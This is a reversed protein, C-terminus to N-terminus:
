APNPEDKIAVSVLAPALTLDALFAIVIAIATLMGFNFLHIMFAQTYVLFSTALVCSTFLLAQGTERLTIVVATEVKGTREFERRFSHMFHITDDVALGIVITGIMLNFMDIQIGLWGMLGLIFVVPALNPIMSLLGLKLKGILAVMLITIVLLATTYSLIMTDIAAVISEGLLRTMGTLGVSVDPGLIERIEPLIRSVYPRIQAADVFPTRVSMRATEFDATVLDEVDDSGSNEFLLLEQSVLSRSDPIAYFEERNENLARHTEKVVDVISIVKNGRIEFYESQEVHKQVAELKRLLEPDHLGNTVGTSVVVEYSVSGGLDDNLFEMAQRIDAHPPFWRLIDNGVRVRALGVLSILMVLAWVVLVLPARRTSFHAWGILFRQSATNENRETAPKMPFIAILAPLLTLTLFLSILIGAPTIAGLHTIPRLAAPIFSLLGGATTLSTMAIPVGSHGLAFSIASIKDDGRRVAQYFIALLHVAGGVGVALLFSPIISSPAMMPTGTLGMLSLTAVVSLIVTILPLIVAAVRRFLVALFVAILAIALAGFLSMDRAMSESAVTNFAPMGAMYIEVDESRHRDIIANLAQVIELDEEGTISTREADPIAPSADVEDFGELTGVQGKTSFAETEIVIATSRGDLSLLNNGYLPNSRARREVDRLAEPTEPWVELLEGVELGEANGITERVNLLSTVEVLFPVEEEIEEHLTRLEELFSLEFVGGEPKLAVVIMSDRGFLDQFADNEVRVPDDPHFYGDFTTELRFHSLQTALLGTAVLVALIVWGAHTAVFRGWRVFLAEIRRHM